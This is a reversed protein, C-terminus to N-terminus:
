LPPPFTLLFDLLHGPRDLGPGALRGRRQGCSAPDPPLPRVHFALRVQQAEPRRRAARALVVHREEFYKLLLPPDDDPHVWVPRRRLLHLGHGAVLLEAMRGEQFRFLGVRLLRTTDGIRQVRRGRTTSRSGGVSRWTVWRIVPM